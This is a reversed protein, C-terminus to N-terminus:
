SSGKLTSTLVVNSTNIVLRQLDLLLNLSHNLQVIKHESISNLHSMLDAQLLWPLELFLDLNPTQFNM